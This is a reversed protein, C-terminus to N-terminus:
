FLRMHHNTSLPQLRGTTYVQCIIKDSELDPIQFYHQNHCAATENDCTSGDGVIHM